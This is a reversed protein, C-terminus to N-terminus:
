KRDRLLDRIETLLVDTTTPPTPPPPEKRILRNMAKVVLFMCFGVILFTVLAQLVAGIGLKADKYLTVNMQSM